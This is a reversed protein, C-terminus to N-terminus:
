LGFLKKIRSWTVRMKMRSIADGPDLNKPCVVQCNFISHCRFIGRNNGILNLREEKGIDRSDNYFRLTKLISHPGVYDPNTGAVPCSGYCAGCLICDIAGDIKKRDSPLQIFEKPPLSETPLLYPKISEYNKFFNTMDVVLDKYVPLHALPRITIIGNNPEVLSEILTNCALRYKGNIHMACSGCVAARCSSRFSLSADINDFIYLLGELVTMGKEWPIQFNDFRSTKDKDPNFRFIKFEIM